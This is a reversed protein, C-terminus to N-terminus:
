PWALSPTSTAVHISKLESPAPVLTFELAAVGLSVYTSQLGGIVCLSVLGEKILM